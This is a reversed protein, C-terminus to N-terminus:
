AFLSMILALIQPLYKLILQIWEEVKEIDLDFTTNANFGNISMFSSMEQPMEDCCKSLVFDHVKSRIKDNKMLRSYIGRRLPPLNEIAQDILTAFSTQM